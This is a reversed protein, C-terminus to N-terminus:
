MGSKIVEAARRSAGEEGLLRRLEGFDEQMKFAIEEDRMIKLLERAIIEPTAGQQILEPVVKRKLLINPLAIADLTVLYKSLHYSVPSTKYMMAFPMGCLAAELTSTGTKVLGVRSKQMLARSDKEFTVPLNKFSNKFIEDPLNRSQAVSFQIDPIEKLLIRATEEMIPLHKLVEQRRSGPLFAVRNERESVNKFGNKFAPDDLLPHGVFETDIGFKKFFEVEFPFVVLLKDVVAALKKARNEGWAWLQPAIYFIVPIKLLKAQAALRMNFGPYDVPIFADFGGTKLLEGCEKLLKKFFSYKKAVEWFGVVSIEKLAVLSQLGEREMNEGGIGTFEVGPLVNKLERMLRAAHLDGSPEGAVIFIKKM